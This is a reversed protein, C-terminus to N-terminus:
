TSPPTPEDARALIRAIWAARKSRAKRVARVGTALGAIIAADTARAIRRRHLLASLALLLAIAAMVTWGVVAAQHDRQAQLEWEARARALDAPPVETRFYNLPDQRQVDYAGM